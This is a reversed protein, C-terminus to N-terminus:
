AAHSLMSYYQVLLYLFGRERERERKDQNLSAKEKIKKEMQGAVKM